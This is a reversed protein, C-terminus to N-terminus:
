AAERKISLVPSDAHVRDVHVGALKGGPAMRARSQNALGTKAPGMRARGSGMRARGDEREIVGM